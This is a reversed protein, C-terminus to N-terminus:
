KKRQNKEMVTHLGWFSVRHQNSVYKGDLSTSLNKVEPQCSLFMEEDKGIRENNRGEREYQEEIQDDLSTALSEAEPPCSLSMGEIERM